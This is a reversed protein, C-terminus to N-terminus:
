QHRTIHHIIPAITISKMEDFPDQPAEKHLFIFFDPKCFAQRCVAFVSHTRVPKENVRWEWTDFVAFLGCGVHPEFGCGESLQNSTDMSTQRAVM